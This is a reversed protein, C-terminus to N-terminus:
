LLGNIVQEIKEADPDGIQQYLILVTRLRKIANDVNNTKLDLSAQNRIADARGKVDGIRSAIEYHKEFYLGAQEYDGLAQYDSGLNSIANGEGYEDGIKQAIQLARHHFEVAKKQEGLLRLATGSQM